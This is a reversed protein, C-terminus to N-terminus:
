VEEIQRLRKAGVAILFYGAAELVLFGYIIFLLPTLHLRSLSPSVSSLIRTSVSSLIVFTIGASLYKLASTYIPGPVHKQYLFINYAANFGRYWFYLYPITLTVVVLWIPLFYPNRAPQANARETIIFYSYISSAAIFLFVWMKQPLPKLRPRALRYLDESGRAIYTFAAAVLVLGIYNNIITLTPQWSTHHKVVQGIVSSLVSSFPLSISLILFGISIRNIAQGDPSKKILNAYAKAVMSGYLGATSILILLAVITSVLWYYGSLSLNYHRLVAKDPQPLYTLFIYAIMLGAFVVAYCLLYRNLNGLFRHKRNTGAEPQKKAM